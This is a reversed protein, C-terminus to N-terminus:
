RRVLFELLARDVLTPRPGPVSRATEAARALGDAFREPGWDAIIERSARGLAELDLGGHAIRHMLEALGEADYPDFTFGNVGERVLDQACGCRNSVLVPLGAAMAENVVLGWQEVTSAHVFCSALGYWVPLEDYQRFGPMSVHAELGLRARHAELDTRLEGDGLIVLDWAGAGTAARYRAYAELLRFLNKKEVFRASALFFREDLGRERRLRAAQGRATEAGRAFHRNDVVDYGTFIRERPMGLSAMYEAHPTGGVLAASCLRVIRSKVWETHLRRPADWATSASMMIAPKRQRLAWCLVALADRTAWGHVVVVSPDVEELARVIGERLATTPLTDIDHDPFVRILEFGNTGEVPAWMNVKDVTSIELGTLPLRRAAAKARAHHYPGFRHWCLIVPTSVRKSTM